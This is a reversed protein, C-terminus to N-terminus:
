KKDAREVARLLAVKEKEVTAQHKRLAAEAFSIAREMATLINRWGAMYEVERGAFIWKKFANRQPQELLSVTGKDYDIEVLVRVGFTTHEVIEFHKRTVDKSM